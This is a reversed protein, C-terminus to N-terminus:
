LRVAKLNSEKVYAESEGWTVRLWVDEKGLVQVRHGDRVISIVSGAASPANMLYTNNNVVIAQPYREGLNLHALLMVSLLVLFTMAVYPKTHFRLRQITILVTFFILASVLSLTILTKSEEYIAYVRDFEGPTYGELNYKEAMEEMKALVAKDQTAIYYLNLYYVAESIHNLGEQIYAMKLLMAPSYQHNDFLAKFIEFSQTYRKQQFLSDGKALLNTNLQSHAVAPFILILIIILIKLGQKQM